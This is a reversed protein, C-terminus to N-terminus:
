AVECYVDNVRAAIVPWAFGRAYALCAAEDPLPIRGTLADRLGSALHEVEVGGFVLAPELAGVAEPLGGVPTVMVPTGSALSELCVLGFGEWAVSPVVSLDAARYLRALRADDIKGLFRVTGGLERQAVRAALAGALSGTGAIVFLVDPVEGRVREAAEVLRDIGKTSELRRVSAVIPRDGPLELEARAQARSGAPAFRRVDVGGPIVRIKKEPIRYERLLVTAFAQSLAVIRDARAYVSFEQLLRLAIARAPLGAYRGELAWPGHFHEVLPRKRIIDLVPFTHPAFHSVVLDSAAVFPRVARRLSPWRVRAGSGDPAFPHVDYSAPDVSLPDGYVLGDIRAGHARLAALLDFYYRDSGSTQSASPILGIQLSRPLRM